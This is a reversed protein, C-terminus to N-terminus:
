EGYSLADKNGYKWKINYATAGPHKKYDAYKDIVQQLPSVTEEIINEAEETIYDNVDAGLAIFFPEVISQIVEHPITFPSDDFYHSLFALMWDTRDQPTFLSSNNLQDMADDFQIGLNAIMDTFFKTMEMSREYVNEEIIEGNDIKNMFYDIIANVISPTYQELDGLMSPEVAATVLGYIAEEMQKKTDM